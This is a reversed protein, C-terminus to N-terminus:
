KKKIKVGQPTDEVIYGQNEIEQRIEDAANFDGLERFKQRNDALAQIVKPIEGTETKLEDLKLGLVGDFNLITLLKEENIFKDSKVVEWLVALAQPINFDEELAAIFKERLNENIKAEGASKINSKIETVENRLKKLANGAADLTEWTFNQKSRYHAGLFLYRLALPDYGKDKIEALSNIKGSSKAMKENDVVLMENHLWYNVFKKGNASESQAIENTHHVPIHDVGGMHIDLTEGLHKKAMASCEIHWGPFGQGWPSEWTQMANAHKGKKFFWLAFDAPHKKNPDSVEGSGAEAINKALNQGSLRTYNKARSVDFYIALETAYAFGKDLLTQAMEQMEKIHETARPKVEAPMVNLDKIDQEFVKIYKDAVEQPSIKDRKAGKELKDEGEDEDSTLHGVDTYNRALKVNYGLYELSRVILDCLVMARMNGIHQTWYVTPGCHYFSVQEDSIPKFKEKKRTLTNYIKLM